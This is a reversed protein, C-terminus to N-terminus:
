VRVEMIEYYPREEDDAEDPGLSEYYEVLFDYADNYSDFAQSTIDDEKEDIRQICYNIAM